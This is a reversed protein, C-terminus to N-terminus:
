SSCIAMARRTGRKLSETSRPILNQLARQINDKPPLSDLIVESQPVRHSLMIFPAIPNNEKTRPLHELKRLCGLFHNRAAFEISAGDDMQVDFHGQLVKRATSRKTKDHCRVRRKALLRLLSLIKPLLPSRPLM